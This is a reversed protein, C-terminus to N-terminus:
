LLSSSFSSRITSVSWMIVPLNFLTGFGWSMIRNVCLKESICYFIVIFGHFLVLSNDYLKSERAGGRHKCFFFTGLFIFLINKTKESKVKSCKWRSVNWCAIFEKKTKYCLFFLFFFVVCRRFVFYCCGVHLFIVKVYVIEFYHYTRMQRMCNVFTRTERTPAATTERRRSRAVGHTHFLWTDGQLFLSNEAKCFYLFNVDKWLLGRRAKYVTYIEVNIYINKISYVNKKDTEPCGTSSQTSLFVALRTRSSETKKGKIKKCFFGACVYLLFILVFLSIFCIKCM